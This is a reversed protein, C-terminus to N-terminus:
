RSAAAPIAAPKAASEGSVQAYTAKVTFRVLDGGQPQSEVASQIIEVPRSFGSSELNGVLDSLSTLSTSVGQLTVHMAGTKADTVQAL